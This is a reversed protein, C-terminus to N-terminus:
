KTPNARRADVIKQSVLTYIRDRNAGSDFQFDYRSGKFPRLRIGKWIRKEFTRIDAYKWTRSHKADTLSEFAIDNDGIMLKGKQDGNRVDIVTPAAPQALAISATALLAALMLRPLLNLMGERYSISAELNM